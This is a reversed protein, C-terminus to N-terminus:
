LKPIAQKMLAISDAVSLQGPPPSPKGRLEIRQFTEERSHQYNGTPNRLYDEIAEVSRQVEAIQAHHADLVQYAFVLFQKIREDSDSM